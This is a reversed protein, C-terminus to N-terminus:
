RRPRIRSSDASDSGLRRWYADAATAPSLGRGAAVVRRTEPRLVHGRYGAKFGAAELSARWPSGAVSVGDVRSVVLERLRGDDVLTRLAAFAITAVAPDESAPLTQLSHGGRELYLVALGDVLVAYAGAARPLPRRDTDGRRPWALAAGYPNAPDAAALLYAVPRAGAGARSAAGAAPRSAAGAAPPGGAGGDWTERMARLRDAAGPLAFQAAGLGEVFYGRRIRGSEEMSRLVPYVASFGGAVEEAAVAERTLVGYRELLATALAHLHQTANAAGDAVGAAGTTAGLTGAVGRVGDAGLTGAVRRTVGHGEVLSWRGVAEPPGMALRGPRPRRESSPRRWRLARLPAFTDNTVDGAWVLDWLADLVERESASGAASGLDRYFSAGRERLRERLRAHLESSPCASGGAAAERLVAGQGPRYLVIRGDDRGLNGAGMWAVEGLAGLEDLLRAQYGPIRARLVDRELVSAPMPFGALQDIVEALRELAAEGPLAAAGDAVPVVGQWAPLFRALVTGEV